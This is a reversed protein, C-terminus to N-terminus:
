RSTSASSQAPGDLERVDDAGIRGTHFATAVLAGDCGAERIRELDDRGRVGGGALLRVEPFRRRLAALLGVDVGAGTGVRGVDLVLLNMTGAAIALAALREEM